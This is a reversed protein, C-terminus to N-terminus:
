NVLKLDCELDGYYLRSIHSWLLFFGSNWKYPTCRWSGSNFICNRLTKILHPTDSFFLLDIRKHTSKKTLYVVGTESNGNGNDTAGAIFKLNIKEQYCVTKRFIPM